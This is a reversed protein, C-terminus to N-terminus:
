QLYRAQIEEFSPLRNIHWKALIKGDKWLILGPNSRQMTKILLDDAIYFPYASQTAHRFDDILAPPNPATVAVVKYGKTMAKELVPNLVEKFRRVYGEDFTYTEQQVTRPVVKDIRTVIQFSDTGAIRVTDMAFLTDNVVVESMAPPSAQKIKWATVMFIYGTDNLIEETVNNGDLDSIDFDSIKTPEIAPPTKIQEFEWEEKPYNAYEQLYQEYPITVVQGTQKNTMRYHTIKVNAMAEEEAAKRARVDTGAKFPRFDFIPEDWAYNRVCFLFFALTTAAVLITRVRPTFLRHMQRWGFLFYIAPVLLVVDKLFSVKPKLKLFDGFCGCDTVKMNTEVYPGWKSFEFFNVGQPVYGTLYTFGTLATFFVLLLFFLWATLRPRSGIILMVGLVIEFVIMFVSIALAHESLWPFMPAIFSVATEKFTYYFEAFYQEMKFATGWPDVAKVFGSFVFLSGCFHQVYTMLVSKHAKLVFVTLATLVLAAVAIYLTLTFITM